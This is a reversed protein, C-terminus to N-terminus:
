GDKHSYVRTAEPGLRKVAQKVAASDKLDVVLFSGPLEILDELATVLDRRRWAKGRQFQVALVYFPTDGFYHVKKQLIYAQKISPFSSLIEYMEEMLQTSLRTCAFDDSVKFKRREDIAEQMSAYFQERYGIYERVRDAEGRGGFYRIAADYAAHGYFPDGLMSRHLIEMCRPDQNEALARGYHFIARCSDPRSKYYNLYHQTAVKMGYVEESLVALRRLMFAALKTNPRIKALETQYYQTKQRAEEHQREWSHRVVRLWVDDLGSVVAHRAAGFYSDAAGSELTVSAPATAGISTLREQLSPHSDELETVEALARRLLGHAFGPDNKYQALIKLLHDLYRVSPFNNQRVQDDLSTTFQQSYIQGVVAIKTLVKAYNDGGFIEAGARDAEREAIRSVVSCYIRLRILYEDTTREYLYQLPRKYKKNLAAHIGQMSLGLRAGWRGGQIHKKWVHAIEHALINKFEERTLCFLLPLGIVLVHRSGLLGSCRPESHVSANFDMSFRIRGFRPAKTQSRVEKIDKMLLPYAKRDASIGAPKPTRFSIAGIFSFAILLGAIALPFDLWWRGRHFYLLAVGTTAVVIPAAIWVGLLVYGKRVFQRYQKLLQEPEHQALAELGLAFGRQELFRFSYDKKM